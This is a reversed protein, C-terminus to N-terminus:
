RLNYAGLIYAGEQKLLFSNSKNQHYLKVLVRYRIFTNQDFSSFSMKLHKKISSIIGGPYLGREKYAWGFDM